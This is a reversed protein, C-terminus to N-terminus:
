GFRFALLNDFSRLEIIIRHLLNGDRTEVAKPVLALSASAGDILRRFEPDVSIAAPALGDCRRLAAAYAAGKTEIDKRVASSDWDARGARYVAFDDMAANAEVVCDALVAVGSTRRLAALAKRIAQLSDAAPEPRGSDALMAATVIRLSVDLMTAGYLPNDKFAAPRSPGFREAVKQWAANLREIDMAALDLNGTRLYGIAGRNHVSAAEVADNFAALDPDAARSSPGWCALAVAVVAITKWM